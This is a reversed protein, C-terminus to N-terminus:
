TQTTASGGSRHALAPGALNLILFWLAQQPNVFSWAICLLASVM